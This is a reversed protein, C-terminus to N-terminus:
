LEIIENEAVIKNHLEGTIPTGYHESMKQVYEPDKHLIGYIPDGLKARHFILIKKKLSESLESFKSALFTDVDKHYKEDINFIAIDFRTDTRDKIIKVFCGLRKMKDLIEDYTEFPTQRLRTALSYTDRILYSNTMFWDYGVNMPVTTIAPLIFTSVDNLKFENIQAQTKDKSISFDKAIFNTSYEYEGDHYSYDVVEGKCISHKNDIILDGDELALDFAGSITLCRAADKLAVIKDSLEYRGCQLNIITDNDYKITNIM